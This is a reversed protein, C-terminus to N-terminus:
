NLSFEPLINKLRDLLKKYNDEYFYSDLKLNLHSNFNDKEDTLIIIKTATDHIKPVLDLLHEAERRNTVKMILYDYKKMEEIHYDKSLMETHRGLRPNHRITYPAPVIKISSADLKYDKVLNNKLDELNINSQSIVVGAPYKEDLSLIAKIKNENSENAIEPLDEILWWKTRQSESNLNDLLMFNNALPQEYGVYFPTNAKLNIAENSTLMLAKNNTLVYELSRKLFKNGVAFEGNLDDLVIMDANKIWQDFVKDFEEDSILRSEKTCLKQFTDGVTRADVFVVNLGANAVAKATSVSLHTKGIGALGSMILGIAEKNGESNQKIVTEAFLKSTEAMKKRLDTDTKYSAFNSNENEKPFQTVLNLTELNNSSSSFDKTAEKNHWASKSLEDNLIYKNIKEASLCIVNTIGGIPHNYDLKDKALVKALEIRDKSLSSSEIMNKTDRSHDMNYGDILIKHIEDRTKVENFFGPEFGTYLNKGEENKGVCVLNWGSYAGELHKLSYKEVGELYLIDGTNIEEEDIDKQGNFKTEFLHFIPNGIDRKELGNVKMQVIDNERPIPQYLAFTIMFPSLAKKFYQDFKETGVNEEIAKYCVAQLASGCDAISPGKLFANLLTSPKENGFEEHFRSRVGPDWYKPNALFKISGNEAQSSSEKIYDAAYWLGNDLSKRSDYPINIDKFVQALSKNLNEQSVFKAPAKITVPSVDANYAKTIMKLRLSPALSKKNESRRLEM